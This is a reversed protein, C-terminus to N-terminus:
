PRGVLRDHEHQTAVVFHNRELERWREEPPLGLLGALELWPLHLVAEEMPSFHWAPAADSGLREAPLPELALVPEVLQLLQFELPCQRLGVALGRAEPRRWPSRM